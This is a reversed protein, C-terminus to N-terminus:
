GPHPQWPLRRGRMMRSGGVGAHGPEVSVPCVSLTQAANEPQMVSQLHVYLRHLDHHHFHDANFPRTRWVISRSGRPQSAIPMSPTSIRNPITATNTCFFPPAEDS